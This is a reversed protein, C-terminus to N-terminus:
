PGKQRSSQGRRIGNGKIVFHVAAGTRDIGASCHILHPATLQSLTLRIQLFDRPRLPPELYDPVAVHGVQFGNKRYLALLDLGNDSYYEKLEDESLLCLISKIGFQSVKSMWQGVGELTPTDDHYCPRCSRALVGTLVWQIEPPKTQQNM